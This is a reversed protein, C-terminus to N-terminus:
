VTSSHQRPGAARSYADFVMAVNRVFPRGLETLEVYDPTELVLGDAQMGVLQEREQGFYHDFDVGFATEIEAKVVRHRCMLDSIVRGRLRDPESRQLGREIPLRGAKLAEYYRSLKMTNQVLTGDVDGISTVGLGLLDSGAQVTYGMFNRMLRGDRDAEALSDHPKAFHDLGIAVYDAEEFADRAALFMELREDADPLRSEDIKKQNGRIWPVHAYGYLAVRDADLDMVSRATRLLSQTSQGPLGYVLDVNIEGMGRQRCGDILARTQEHPQIRGILSQVDRDLDQVGVSVRNVGLGALVDLHESTTVRPDLEVSFEMSAEPEFRQLLGRGLRELLEPELYSPTGGGFHLQAIGRRQGLHPMLLDAEALLADVYPPAVKDHAPSSIVSCACFTCRKRCFPVHVYVSWPEGPRQAAAELRQLYAHEAMPGLQVATPYSTYRPGATQYKSVLARLPESTSPM